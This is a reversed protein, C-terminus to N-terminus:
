IAVDGIGSQDYVKKGGAEDAQHDGSKEGSEHAGHAGDEVGGGGHDSEDEKAAQGGAGHDNEAQEPNGENMEEAGLEVDIELANLGIDARGDGGAEDEADEPRTEVSLARDSRKEDHKDEPGHAEDVFDQVFRMVVLGARNAPEHVHVEKVVGDPHEDDTGEDQNTNAKHVGSGFAPLEGTKGESSHVVLNVGDIGRGKM